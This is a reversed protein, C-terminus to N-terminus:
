PTQSDQVELSRANALATFEGRSRRATAIKPAANAILAIMAKTKPELLPWTARGGVGGAGIAAESTGPVDAGDAGTLWAFAAVGNWQPLVAGASNPLAAGASIQM